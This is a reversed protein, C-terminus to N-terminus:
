PLLSASAKKFTLVAAHHKVVLAEVSSIDQTLELQGKAVSIATKFGDPLPDLDIDNVAVEDTKQMKGVSDEATTAESKAAASM